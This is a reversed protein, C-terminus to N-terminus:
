CCANCTYALWILYYLTLCLSLLLINLLLFAYSSAVVGYKTALLHVASPIHISCVGMFPNALNGVHVNVPLDLTQFIDM